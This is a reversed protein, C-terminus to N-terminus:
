PCESLKKSAREWRMGIGVFAVRFLWFIFSKYLLNGCGSLEPM